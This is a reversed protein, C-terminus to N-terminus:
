TKAYEGFFFEPLIEEPNKRSLKLYISSRIYGYGYGYFSKRTQIGNLVINLSNIKQVEFLEQVRHVFLRKSYNSKFVYIPIDAVALVSIGDSVIGVPPNDIMIVDYKKQPEPSRWAREWGLHDRLAERAVAFASYKKM